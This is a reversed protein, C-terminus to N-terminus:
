PTKFILERHPLNDNNWRRLSIEEEAASCLAVGTKIAYGCDTRRWDASSSQPTACV